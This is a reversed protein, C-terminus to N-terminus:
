SHTAAKRLLGKPVAGTIVALVLYGLAAAATIAGLMLWTQGFLYPLIDDRRDLAVMVWIGLGVALLLMRLVRGLLGLGPKLVGRRVLTTALLSTEVWSAVITGLPVSLFGIAPFLAISIAANLAIATLAFTMPTRTDERAFFASVFVKQMVFAPLGFAYVFLAAGTMSVDTADFRSGGLVLAPLDDFLVECLFAPMAALAAAAPLSFLLATEMGGNLTARAGAEDGSKVARSIAPMLVVGLAIGIISLPLQYLQDAYSLWSYAGEQRSAINSGVVANVQLASAGIFGPTGLVLMRKAGATFRPLRLRLLLESRQAAWLLALLQLVGGAMVSWSAVLGVTEIGADRAALLGAILAVNLLLPAAAAAAFRQLANLMGGYLGVLSMCALYPFMIRTYVITLDFREPDARFGYAILTVVVPTFLLVLSSLVTLIVVLWALIDEAFRKAEAMDGRAEAGQFLPIFAAQFAGEALLRRFMNPLKFAAWFADAVPNGAGMVGALLMQRAFGLVRSVMTLGSVTAVQRLFSRAM